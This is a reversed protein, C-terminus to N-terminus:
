DKQIAGDAAVVVESKKAGKKIQAEYTTVGDKTIAEVKTIAGGGAAHEIATRAAQPIGALTVQQEDAVVKGTADFLIDRSKGDARTEVEYLTKGDETEVSLGTVTLGQTHERVAEQVPGPLDKMAVTRESAVVSTIMLVATSIVTLSTMFKM